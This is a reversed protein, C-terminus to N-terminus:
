YTNMAIEVFTVLATKTGSALTSVTRERSLTESEVWPSM